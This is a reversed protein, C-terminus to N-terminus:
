RRRRGARYRGPTTARRTGNAPRVTRGIRDGAFVAALRFTCRRVAASTSAPIKGVWGRISASRASGCGQRGADTARTSVIARTAVIATRGERHEFRMGEFASACTAGLEGEVVIEYVAVM